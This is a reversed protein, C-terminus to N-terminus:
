EFFDDISTQKTQAFQDALKLVARHALSEARRWMDPWDSDSVGLASALDHSVQQCGKRADVRVNLVGPVDIDPIMDRTRVVTYGADLLALTDLLDKPKHEHYRRGDHFFAQTGVLMDPMIQLDGFKLRHGVARIFTDVDDGGTWAIFATADPFMEEISRTGINNIHCIPGLCYRLTRGHKCRKNKIDVADPGGCSRCYLNGLADPRAFNAHKKRCEACMRNTVDIADPGACGRCFRLGPADEREFCPTTVECGACKANVVDIGDPGACGRCFREPADDIQFVAQKLGCADCMRARFNVADAGACDSCFRLGPAGEKHFAAQKLGCEACKPSKVDLAGTGGCMRCYWVGPDDPKQDAAGKGCICCHAGFARMDPTRHVKCWQPGWFKPAYSARESCDQNRCIKHTKHTDCWKRICTADCGPVACIKASAPHAGSAVMDPTRHFKCWQPGWFNPAYYARENCDQFRCTKHTKHTDCWKRICTADCDPVACIKASATATGTTLLTSEFPDSVQSPKLQEWLSMVYHRAALKERLHLIILARKDVAATVYGGDDIRARKSPTEEPYTFDM